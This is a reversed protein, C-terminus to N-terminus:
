PGDQLAAMWRNQALRPRVLPKPGTSFLPSV